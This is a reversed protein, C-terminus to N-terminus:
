ANKTAASRSWCSHASREPRDFGSLSRCLGRCGAPIRMWRDVAQSREDRVILRQHSRYRQEDLGTGSVDTWTGRAHVPAIRPARMPSVAARLIAPATASRRRTQAAANSGRRTARRPVNSHSNDAVANPRSRARDTGTMALQLHTSFALTGMALRGSKDLRPPAPRRRQKSLMRDEMTALAVGRTLDM